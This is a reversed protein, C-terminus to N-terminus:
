FTLVFYWSFMVSDDNIVTYHYYKFLTVKSPSTSFRGEWEMGVVSGFVWGGPGVAGGQSCM